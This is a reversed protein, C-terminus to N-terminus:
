ARPGQLCSPARYMRREGSTRTALLARARTTMRARAMARAGFRAMRHARHCRHALSGRTLMRSQMSPGTPHRRWGRPATSPRRRM